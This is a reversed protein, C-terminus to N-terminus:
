LTLELAALVVCLFGTEFFLSLFLFCLLVFCFVFFFCSMSVGQDYVHMYEKYETKRVIKTPHCLTNFTRGLDM